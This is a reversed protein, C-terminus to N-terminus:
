SLEDSVFQPISIGMCALAARVGEAVGENYATDISHRSELARLRFTVYHLVANFEPTGLNNCEANMQAKIVHERKRSENTM